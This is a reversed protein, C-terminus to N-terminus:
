KYQYKKKCFIEYIEDRYKSLGIITILPTIISWLVALIYEISIGVEIRFDHYDSKGSPDTATIKLEIPPYFLLKNKSNHLENITGSLIVKDSDFILGDPLDSNNTQM